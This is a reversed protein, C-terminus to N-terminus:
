HNTILTCILQLKVTFITILSLHNIVLLTHGIEYKM